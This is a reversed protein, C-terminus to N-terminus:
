VCTKNLSKMNKKKKKGLLFFFNKSQFEDDLQFYSCYM